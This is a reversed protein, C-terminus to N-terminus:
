GAAGVVLDRVRRSREATAGELRRRTTQGRRLAQAIAMEVQEPGTGAETVDAITRAVSTVRMGDRLTVDGPELTRTTTHITVGPLNPLHRRSRPVTLHIASPIVDSLELLDLASEHSVVTSEKGVALWAAMVDERPSTPYDRLRYLGRRIRLYRGRRAGDSLLDWGVGCARAQAATFYGHQESAIEFLQRHDPGDSLM